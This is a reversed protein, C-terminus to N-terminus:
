AAPVLSFNPPEATQADLQKFTEKAIAGIGLTVVADFGGGVVGGVFPVIKALNVLGRTGAKTVLRFGVAQNIKALTAASIQMIMRTTLKTGLGVGFEQLIASGASGALCIFALTRVRDDTLQYGRLHAIAALMRLQILLTSALNAPIAAPMTILGGLGTVFGAAGAYAIQWAILNDIAKETSGGSSALHSDALDAASGLGPIASSARDYAWHLASMMIAMAKTPKANETMPDQQQTPDL